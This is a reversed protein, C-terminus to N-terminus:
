ATAGEAYKQSKSDRVTAVQQWRSISGVHCGCRMKEHGSIKIAVSKARTM